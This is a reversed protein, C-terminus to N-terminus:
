RQAPYHLWIANGSTQISYRQTIAPTNRIVYDYINARRSRRYPVQKSSKENDWQLRDKKDGFSAGHLVFEYYKIKGSDFIPQLIRNEMDQAATWVTAFVRLMDRDNTIYNDADAYQAYSTSSLGFLVECEISDSEDRINIYMAIRYQHNNANTFTYVIPRHELQQVSDLTPNDPLAPRQLPYAMRPDLRLIERLINKMRLSM